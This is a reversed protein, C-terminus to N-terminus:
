RLSHEFSILQEILGSFYTTVEIVFEEKSRKIYSGFAKEYALLLNTCKEFNCSSKWECRAAAYCVKIELLQFVLPSERTQVDTRYNRDQSIFNPRAFNKKFLPVM